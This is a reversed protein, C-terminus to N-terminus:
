PPSNANTNNEKAVWFLTIGTGRASVKIKTTANDIASVGINIINLSFSSCGLNEIKSSLGSLSAISSFFVTMM